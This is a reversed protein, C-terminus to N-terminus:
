GSATPEEPRDYPGDAKKGRLRRRIREDAEQAIQRRTEQAAEPSLTHQPAAGIGEHNDGLAHANALETNDVVPQSAFDDEM